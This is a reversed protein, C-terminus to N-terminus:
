NRMAVAETKGGVAVPANASNTGGGMMRQMHGNGMGWGSWRWDGAITVASIMWVACVLMALLAGAVIMIPVTKPTGLQQM